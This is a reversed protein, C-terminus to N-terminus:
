KQYLNHYKTVFNKISYSSAIQKLEDSKQTIINQYDAYVLKMKSSIDIPDNQDFYLVADQGVDHLVPLDSCVVPVGLQMGEVLAIGFGEALSPFVLVDFLGMYTAKKKETVHDTFIVKDCVGLAKALEKIQDFLAGGGILILRMDAFEKALNAFARILNSHNKEATFRAIYGYYFLNGDYKQLLETAVNKFDIEPVGNPIVSIKNANLKEYKAKVEKIYPTLAIIDTAFLNGAIFNAIFNVFLAMYKKVGRHQWFMFPTHVHYIRKPTRAIFGALMSLVGSRLEHGHVIDFQNAKLFKILRYVYGIDFENKPYLENALAGAKLYETYYDGKPCLVYIEFEDALGKVIDYIHKEVGGYNSSHYCIAIKKNNKM